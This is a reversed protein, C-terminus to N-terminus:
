SFTFFLTVYVLRVSMFRIWDQHYVDHTDLVLPMRPIQDYFQEMDQIKMTAFPTYPQAANAPRGFAEPATLQDGGVASMPM